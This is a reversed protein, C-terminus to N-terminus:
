VPDHLQFVAEEQYQPVNNIVVSSYLAFQKLFVSAVQFDLNDELYREVTGPPAPTNLRALTIHPFYSRAEPQFGIADTLTTSISHHLALLSPSDDVGSWLVQPQGEPPF